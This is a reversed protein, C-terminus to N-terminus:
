QPAEMIVAKQKWGRKLLKKVLGRRCSAEITDAGNLDRYGILAAEMEDAWSEFETGVLIVVFVVKKRPFQNMELIMGGKLDEGEHAVWFAMQGSSISHYLDCPALSDGQGHRLGKVVWPLFHPWVVPLQDPTVQSIM